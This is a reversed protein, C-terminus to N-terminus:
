LLGPSMSRKSIVVLTYSSAHIVVGVTIRSYRTDKDWLLLNITNIIAPQILRVVIGETEEDDIGHRTFGRDLDYNSTDGDLLSAKLEGKIVLADHRLSALNEEPM